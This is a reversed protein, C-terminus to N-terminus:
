GRGVDYSDRSEQMIVDFDAAPLNEIEHPARTSIACHSCLIKMEPWKRLAAQGSPYVGVPHGCRSCVHTDDQAPHMRAMEALRMTVLADPRGGSM